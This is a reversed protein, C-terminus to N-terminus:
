AIVINILNAVGVVDRWEVEKDSFDEREEIDEIESEDSQDDEDLM